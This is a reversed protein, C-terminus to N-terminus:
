FEEWDDGAQALAPARETPAPAPNTSQGEAPAARNSWPRKRSRREPRTGTKAEVAPDFSASAPAPKQEGARSRPQPAFDSRRAEGDEHSFFGVLRRLEGVQEEMSDSATATEEVLSANQQTMEDMQTVAQNVQEIGASQQRSAAAIEAMIDSVKKGSSVIAELSKGSANVLRSGEEVKQVSDEILAKIEKAAEASRSALNRVEGAVVAFGRGQEGARAAEVAANLALLNTQFAIDDIVRIIDSIRKGSENIAQMAVVTSGVISGGEEAQERARVVLQNAQQANDSNQTVTATMEEMSAATEELSAAQEEIRQSLNLSGASVQSVDSAVQDARANLQATVEILKAVTTNADEKLKAFAGEYQGDITETLQGAALASLVRSMDGIVREQEASMRQERAARELLQRRMDDVAGLLESLENTGPAEVPQDLEGNAVARLARRTDSLRGNVHRLVVFFVLLALVVAALTSGLAVYLEREGALARGELLGQAQDNMQSWLSSFHKIVTTGATFVESPAVEIPTGDLIKGELQEVFAAASKRTEGSVNELAAAVEVNAGTAAELLSRLNALVQQFQAKATVLRLEEARTLAKRAAVGSALGRLRGLHEIALPVADTLASILPYSDSEPDLILYSETAVRRIHALIAAVLATHRDFSERAGLKANELANWGSKIEGWQRATEFLGPHASEFEDVAAIASEIERSKGPLAVTARDSGNLASNELGRHEALHRQLTALRGVYDLGVLESQAFEIGRYQAGTYSKLLMGLPVMMLVMVVLFQLKLGTRELLKM